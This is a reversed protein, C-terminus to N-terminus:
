EEDDEDEEDCEEMATGQKAACSRSVTMLNTPLPTGKRALGKTPPQMTADPMDEAEEMGEDDDEQIATTLKAARPGPVNMLDTPIPTGKRAHSLNMPLPGLLSPMDESNNGFPDDRSRIGHDVLRNDIKGKMKARAQKNQEAVVANVLPGRPAKTLDDMISSPLPTAQRDLSPPIAYENGLRGADDTATADFVDDEEEEDEGMEEENDDILNRSNNKMNWHQDM